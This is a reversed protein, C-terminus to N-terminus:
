QLGMSQLVGPRGTWWSEAVGHVAAWWAGRGVPNELSSYQLPNGNGEGFPAGLFYIYLFIQGTSDVRNMIAGWSFIWGRPLCDTGLPLSSEPSEM